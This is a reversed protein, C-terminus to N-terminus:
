NKIQGFGTMLWHDTLITLVDQDEVAFDEIIDFEALFEALQPM